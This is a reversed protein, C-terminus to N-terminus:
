AMRRRVTRLVGMGALLGIGMWASAPLPAVPTPRETVVTFDAQSAVGGDGDLVRVKGNYTGAAGFAFTVNQGTADVISDNNFDWEYTLPDNAGAPDTAAVSFSGSENVYLASAWTLSTITPNANGVAFDLLSVGFTVSEPNNGGNNVVTASGSVGAKFTGNDIPTIASSLVSYTNQIPSLPGFNLTETWPNTPLTGSGNSTSFTVSGQKLYRNSPSVTLGVQLQFSSGEVLSSPVTTLTASVTAGMAPAAALGLGALALCTARKLMHIGTNM